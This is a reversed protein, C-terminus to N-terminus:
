LPSRCREAPRPPGVSQQDMWEDSYSLQLSMNVLYKGIPDYGYRLTSTKSEVQRDVNGFFPAQGFSDYPVDTQTAKTETHSATISHADDDGFTLKGKILWSPDDVGGGAPNVLNGNGDKVPNSKRYTYNALFELKETPQWALISSTM